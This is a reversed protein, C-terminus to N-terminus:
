QLYFTAMIPKHDSLKINLTQFDVAKFSADNFIYDIRFSPLRGVYTGGRGIGANLYSDELLNAITQYAYSIPTDNFDGCLLVPYPSNRINKQAIYVQESRKEYARKLKNFTSKTGEVDILNEDDSELIQDSKDLHISQLHMNYLRITDKEILVDAYIFANTGSNYFPVHLQNIIPHKSFIAMGYYEEREKITIKPQFFHHPYDLQKQLYSINDWGKKGGSFFEQFAIIDPNQREIYKMMENRAKLDEKWNYYDFNKVNYSMLKTLRIKESPKPPDKFAVLKKINPYSLLIVAIPIFGYGKKHYLWFVAFVLNIFVLFIYGLGLFAPIWYDSPNTYPATNAFMLILAFGVTATLLSLKVIKKIM